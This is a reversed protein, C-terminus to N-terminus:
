NHDEFSQVWRHSVVPGCNLEVCVSISLELEAEPRDPAVTLPLHTEGSGGVWGCSLPDAM